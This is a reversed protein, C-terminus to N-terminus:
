SCFSHDLEGFDCTQCGEEQYYNIYNQKKKSFALEALKFDDETDIDILEDGKLEFYGINGNGGHYASNFEKMNQIFKNSNWGMLGCAYAKIPELSQSPQTKDLKNFNIAQNKFICEIQVNYISILTDYNNNIMYNCFNIITESNILPSTALLQFLNDCKINNLFDLTFEDNTATDSALYLPRKYFKINYKDSIKKFEESESNLYIEDFLKYKNNTEITSKIIHEVLPINDLLRLNKNKVRKSGLRVPIMAVIKMKLIFVM